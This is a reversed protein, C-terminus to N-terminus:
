DIQKGLVVQFRGKSKGDRAYKRYQNMRGASNM